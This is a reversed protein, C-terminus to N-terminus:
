AIPLEVRTRCTAPAASGFYRELWRTLDATSKPNAFPVLSVAAGGAQYALGDDVLAELARSVSVGTAGWGVARHVLAAVPTLRDAAVMLFSSVPDLARTQEGPGRERVLIVGAALRLDIARPGGRWEEILANLTHLHRHVPADPPIDREFFYSHEDPSLVDPPILHRATDPPRLGQIGFEGPATHFPSFRHVQVLSAPGSPPPLHMLRPIVRVMDAYDEDREGPFGVLVNYSATIQYERFWKLAQAIQGVTLGKRM